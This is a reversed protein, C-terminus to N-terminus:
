FLYPSDIVAAGIAVGGKDVNKDKSRIIHGSVYNKMVNETPINDTVPSGYFYAYIGLEGVVDMLIPEQQPRIVYNQFSAQYM